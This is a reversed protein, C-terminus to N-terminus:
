KWDDTWTVHLIGLADTYEGGIAPGALLRDVAAVMQQQFDAGDADAFVAVDNISISSQASSMGEGFQSVPAVLVTLQLENVLQFYLGLAEGGVSVVYVQYELKGLTSGDAGVLDSSGGGVATFLAPDSVLFTLMGNAVDTLNGPSDFVSVLFEYQNDNGLSVSGPLTSEVANEGRNSWPAVWSLVTGDGFTHSTDEQAHLAVRSFLATGSAAAVASRRSIRNSM